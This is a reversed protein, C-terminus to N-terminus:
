TLRAFTPASHVEFEGVKVRAYYVEIPTSTRDSPNELRRRVEILDGILAVGNVVLMALVVGAFFWM